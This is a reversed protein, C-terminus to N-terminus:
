WFRVLRMGPVGPGGCMLGSPQRGLQLLDASVLQDDDIFDAIDQEILIRGVQEKLQDSPL